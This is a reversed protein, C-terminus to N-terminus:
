RYRAARRPDHHRRDQRPHQAFGAIWEAIDGGYYMQMLEEPLAEPVDLIEETTIESGDHQLMYFSPESKAVCEQLVPALQRYVEETRKATSAYVEGRHGYSATLVVFTEDDFRLVLSSWELRKGNVRRAARYVRNAFRQALRELAGQELDFTIRHMPRNAFTLGLDDFPRYQDFEGTVTINKKMFECFFTFSNWHSVGALCPEPM